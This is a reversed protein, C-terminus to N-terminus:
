SGFRSEFFKFIFINTQHCRHRHLYVRFMKMNKSIKPKQSKNWDLSALLVHEILQIFKENQLCNLTLAQKGTLKHISYLHNKAINKSPYALTVCRSCVFNNNWIKKILKTHIHHRSEIRAESTYMNSDIENVFWKDIRFDGSILQFDECEAQDSISIKSFHIRTKWFMLMPVEPFWIRFSKVLSAELYFWVFIHGFFWYFM